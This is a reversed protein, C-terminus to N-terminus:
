INVRRLCSGSFGRFGIHGLLVESVGPCQHAKVHHDCYIARLTRALYFPTEERASFHYSRYANPTRDPRLTSLM